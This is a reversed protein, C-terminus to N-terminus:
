ENGLIIPVEVAGNSGNPNINFVIETGNGNVVNWNNNQYYAGYTNSTEMTITWNPISNYLIFNFKKYTSSQGPVSPFSDLTGRDADGGSVTVPINYTEEVISVGATYNLFIFRPLLSTLM